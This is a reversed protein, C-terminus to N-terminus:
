IAMWELVNSWNGQVGKSVVSSRFYYIGGSKLGTQIFKVRTSICITSWGSDNAPDTSMQYIYAGHVVAKMNLEVSGKIRGNKVNFEKPKRQIPKKETMGASAIIESTSAADANAINQVYAGLTHLMFRLLRAETHMTPVSGMVRTLSVGYANELADIQTTISGLDPSPSPFYSNGTMSIVFHRSKQILDAIPINWLGLAVCKKIPKPTM